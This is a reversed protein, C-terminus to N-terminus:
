KPVLRMVNELVKDVSIATMCELTGKPCIKQDCGLCDLESILCIHKEKEWYPGWNGPLSVGWLSVSSTGMLYALHTPGSSHGIFISLCSILYALQSVTTKGTLNVLPQKAKSQIEEALKGENAAGLCIVRANYERTLRDSLEAFREAPWRPATRSGPHIGILRTGESVGGQKILGAAIKKDADTFNINPRAQLEPMGLAKLIRLNLDIIHTNKDFPLQCNYVYKLKAFDYGIRIPIGALWISLATVSSTDYSAIAVDFNGGSIKSLWKIFGFTNKAKHPYTAWINDVLMSAKVLEAGVPTTLLTIEAEKFGQRLSNLAPLFTVMDGLMNIKIVLIKQRKEM